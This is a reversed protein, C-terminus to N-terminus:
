DREKFITVIQSKNLIQIIIIYQKVHVYNSFLYTQVVIHLEKQLVPRKSRDTLFMTWDATNSISTIYLQSQKKREQHLCIFILFITFHEIFLTRRPDLSICKHFFFLVPFPLVSVFDPRFQSIQAIISRAQLSFHNWNTNNCKAIIATSYVTRNM